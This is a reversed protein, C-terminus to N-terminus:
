NIAEIILKKLQEDNVRSLNNILFLRDERLENNYGLFFPANEQINYRLYRLEVNLSDRRIADELLDKGKNFYSLKTYPNYSHKALIMHAVGEYGKCIMSEHAYPQVVSLLKKTNEKSEVSLFYLSRVNQVDPNFVLLAFLIALVKM